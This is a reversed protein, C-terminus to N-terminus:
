KLLMQWKSIVDNSAINYKKSVIERAKLVMRKWKDDTRNDYKDQIIRLWDDENDALRGTAGNYIVDSYPPCNSAIVPLGALSYEMWKIPSKSRSFNNDLLPCIGIDACIKPLMSFYTEVDKFDVYEAIGQWFVLDKRIFSPLYGMIALKCDKHDSFFRKLAGSCVDFDYEHSAGGSWLIRFPKKVDLVYETNFSSVDIANPIVVIKSEIEKGVNYVLANKLRDTTVCIKDCLQMIFSAAERADNGFCKRSPHYEPLEFLNDDIDYVLKKGAKKLQKLVYYSKWDCTRQIVITDYELLYEFIVEVVSVDVIYESEPLNRAPLVMRWYGCGGDDGKIFIVKTKNKFKGEYTESIKKLALNHIDMTNKLTSYSTAINKPVIWQKYIFDATHKCNTFDEKHMFEETGDFKLCVIDNKNEFPHIVEAGNLIKIVSYPLKEKAIDMPMKSINSKSDIQM